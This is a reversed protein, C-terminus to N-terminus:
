KRAQIISSSLQKERPYSVTNLVLRSFGLVSGTQYMKIKYPKEKSPPASVVVFVFRVVQTLRTAKFLLPLVLIYVLSPAELVKLCLWLNFLKYIHIYRYM